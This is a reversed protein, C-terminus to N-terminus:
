THMRPCTSVPFVFSSSLMRRVLTCSPSAPPMVCCIPADNKGLSVSVSRIPESTSFFDSFTSTGPRIIMSVGPCSDNELRRERPEDSQSM